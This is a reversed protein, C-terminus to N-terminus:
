SVVSVHDSQAILKEWMVDSDKKIIPPPEIVASENSHNIQSAPHNSHSLSIKRLKETMAKVNVPADSTEDNETSATEDSGEDSETQKSAVAQNSYLMDMVLKKDTSMVDSSREMESRNPIKEEAESPTPIKNRVESSIPATQEPQFNKDLKLSLQGPDSNQETKRNLSSVDGNPLQIIPPPATDPIQSQSTPQPHRQRRRTRVVDENALSQTREPTQRQKLQQQQKELEIQQEREM